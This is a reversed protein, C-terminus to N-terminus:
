TSWRCKLCFNGPSGYLNWSIELLTKLNWYIELIELLQLCESIQSALHQRVQSGVQLMIDIWYRTHRRISSQRCLTSACLTRRSSGRLTSSVTPACLMLEFSCSWLTKTPFVCKVVLCSNLVCWSLEMVAGYLWHCHICCLLAVLRCALM